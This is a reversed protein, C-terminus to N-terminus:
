IDYESFWLEMGIEILMKVFETEVITSRGASGERLIFGIDAYYSGKDFTDKNDKLWEELESMQEKLDWSDDCIGLVKGNPLIIRGNTAKAEPDIFTIPM